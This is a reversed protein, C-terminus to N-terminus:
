RVVERGGEVPFSGHRTVLLFGVDLTEGFETVAPLEDRECTQVLAREHGIGERFRVGLVAHTRVALDNLLWLRLVLDIHERMLLPTSRIIDIIHQLHDATTHTRCCGHTLADRLILELLNLNWITHNAYSDFVEDDDNRVIWLM